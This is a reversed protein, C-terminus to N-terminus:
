CNSSTSYVVQMAADESMVSRSMRRGEKVALAPVAGRSHCALNWREKVDELARWHRAKTDGPWLLVGLARAVTQTTPKLEYAAGGPARSLYECGPLEQCLLHWAASADQSTSFGGSSYHSFFQVVGPSCSTPLRALHFSRLAPDYLLMEILERVVVEVCDPKEKGGKYGHKELRVPTRFAHVASMGAALQELAMAFAGDPLAPDLISLAANRCRALTHHSHPSLLAKCALTHVPFTIITALPLDCLLM